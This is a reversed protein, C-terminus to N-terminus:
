EILAALKGFWGFSSIGAVIGDHSDPGCIYQEGDGAKRRLDDRFGQEGQAPLARQQRHLNV